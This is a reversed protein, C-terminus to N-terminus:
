TGSPIGTRNQSSEDTVAVDRQAGLADDSFFRWESDNFNSIRYAKTRFSAMSDRRMENVIQRQPKSDWCRAAM